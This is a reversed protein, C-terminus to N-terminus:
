LRSLYTECSDHFNLYLASYNLDDVPAIPSNNMATHMQQM